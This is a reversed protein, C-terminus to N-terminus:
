TIPLPFNHARLRDDFPGPENTEPFPSIFLTLTHSPASETQILASTILRPYFITKPFSPAMCAYIGRSRGGLGGEPRKDILSM